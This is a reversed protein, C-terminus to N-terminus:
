TKAEENMLANESTCVRLGAPAIIRPLWYFVHPSFRQRVFDSLPQRLPTASIRCGQFLQCWEDISFQMTQGLGVHPSLTGTMGQLRRRENIFGIQSQDFRLALGPLVARM